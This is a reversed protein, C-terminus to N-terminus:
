QNPYIYSLETPDTITLTIGDAYHLVLKDIKLTKVGATTKLWYHSKGSIGQGKGFPGDARCGFTDIGDLNYNGALVGSMDYQQEGVIDYGKLDFEVRNLEKDALNKFNIYFYQSVLYGDEAWMKSVTFTRAWFTKLTEVKLEAIDGVLVTTPIKDFFSRVDFAKGNNYYSAIEKRLFNCTTEIIQDDNVIKGPLWKIIEYMTAPDNSEVYADYETQMRERVVAKVQDDLDAIADKKEQQVVSPLEAHLSYMQKFDGSTKAANFSDLMNKWSEEVLRTQTESVKAYNETDSETVWSLADLADNYKGANEFDVAELFATKSKEIILISNDYRNFTQSSVADKCNQLVEKAIDKELLGSGYDVIVSLIAKDAMKKYDDDNLDLLGPFLGSFLGYEHAQINDEMTSLVIDKIAQDDKNDAITKLAKDYDGAELAKQLSTEASCASLMVCLILFVVGVRMIRPICNRKQKQGDLLM